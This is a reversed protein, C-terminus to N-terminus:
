VDPGIWQWYYGALQGRYSWMYWTNRTEGIQIGDDWPYLTEKLYIWQNTSFVAGTLTDQLLVTGDYWSKDGPHYETDNVFTGSIYDYYRGDTGCMVPTVDKAEDVATLTVREGKPLVLVDGPRAEPHKAGQTFEISYVRQSLSPRAEPYVLRYVAMAAEARTLSSVPMFEGLNNGILLGMLYALRVSEEFQPSVESFDSISSDLLTYYPLESDTLKAAAILVFAMEQRPMPATLFSDDFPYMEETILGNKVALFYNLTYWPSVNAFWPYQSLEDAYLYRTIVTIFEIRSMPANPDFTGMGNVPETTGIFLRNEGTTMEMVATYFWDGENVDSFGVLEDAGVASALSILMVFAVFISIAKKM